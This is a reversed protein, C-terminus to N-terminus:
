GGPRPHLPVEAFTTIIVKATEGALAEALQTSSEDIKKVVGVTHDFQFITDQLQRDLVRM